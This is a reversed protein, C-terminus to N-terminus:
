RWCRKIKGRPNLEITGLHEGRSQRLESGLSARIALRLHWLATLLQDYHSTQWHGADHHACYTKRLSPTAEPGIGDTLDALSDSWWAKLCDNEYRNEATSERRYRVEERQTICLYFRKWGIGRYPFAAHPNMSLALASASM